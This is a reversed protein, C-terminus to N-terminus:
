YISSKEEDNQTNSGDAESNNAKLKYLYEMVIIFSKNVFLGILCGILTNVFRMVAGMYSHSDQDYVMVIFFGTLATRSVEIFGFLTCLTIVLVVGILTSLFVSLSMLDPIPLTQLYSNLFWCLLGVLPGITNGKIRNSAAKTTNDHTISLVVSIIVWYLDHRIAPFNLFILLTCSVALLCKSIYILYTQPSVGTKKEFLTVTNKEKSPM